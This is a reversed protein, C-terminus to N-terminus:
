ENWVYTCAGPVIRSMTFAYTKFINNNGVNLSQASYMGRAYAQEKMYQQLEDLTAASTTNTGVANKVLEYFKDDHIYNYCGVNNDYGRTDFKSIYYQALCVNSGGDGDIIIDWAQPNASESKFLNSELCSIELNVGIKAFYEQMILAVKDRSNKNNCLLRLTLEGESYGAEKLLERAQNEDYDFYEEEEWKPNFDEFDSLAISKLAVGYGDLAGDILAQVDIARMVAQRLAANDNFVSGSDMNLFMYETGLKQFTIIEFEDMNEFTGAIDNSVAAFDITKNQLEISVQSSENIILYTYSDVNTQQEQALRLEEKQWYNENREYSISTGIAYDTMKYVGTGVPSMSMEDESAEYAARSVVPLTSCLTEFSGVSNSAMEMDMTYDDVKTLTSFYSACEISNMEKASEFSWMVDEITIPNNESDHIYDYIKIRYVPTEDSEICEYSEMLVNQFGQATSFVSLTEYLCQMANYRTTVIPAFPSFTAPDGALCITVKSKEAEVTKSSQTIDSDQQKKGCGSLINTLLFVALVVYGCKKMRRM